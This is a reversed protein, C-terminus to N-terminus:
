NLATCKRRPGHKPRHPTKKQKLKQRQSLPVPVTLGVAPIYFSLASLDVSLCVFRCRIPHLSLTGIASIFEAAPSLSINLCPPTHEHTRPALRNPHTRTRETCCVCVRVCRCVYEREFVRASAYIRGCVRVCVCVCVCM